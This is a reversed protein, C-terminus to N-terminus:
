PTAAPVVPRVNKLATYDGMPNVHLNALTPRAVIVNTRNWIPIYPAEDAVITQVAAYYKKREEEGAATSSEDLLRDVAANSYYGRNFGAPPVQNSHFVRRLIDPDAMAGGVWQLTFMQFNGSQVDAFFTAFEYSRLRLDIGVRRLDQQIVTSQLLTEENTSLSLSLDLRPLPGDGDPDPYGAEDLLRKAREPDYTFQHVNPEFAWSGPPILGFAKEALGRRLYRIIADRDIAYGIAHRV